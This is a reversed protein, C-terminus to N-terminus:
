VAAEDEAVPVNEGMLAGKRTYLNRAVTMWSLGEM